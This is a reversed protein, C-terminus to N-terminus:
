RLRLAKLTEEPIQHFIRAKRQRFRSMGGPPRAIRQSLKLLFQIQSHFTNKLNHGAALRANMKIGNLRCLVEPDMKNERAIKAVTDGKRVKYTSVESHAAGCGETM